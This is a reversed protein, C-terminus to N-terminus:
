LEPWSVEVIERKSEMRLVKQFINEKFYGNIRASFIRSSEPSLWSGRGEMRDLLSELDERRNEFAALLPLAINIPGGAFIATQPLKTLGDITAFTLAIPMISDVIFDAQKECAIRLSKDIEDLYLTKYGADIYGYWDSGFSFYPYWVGDFGERVSIVGRTLGHLIRNIVEQHRWSRIGLACNFTVGGNRYSMRPEVVAALGNELDLRCCGTEDSLGRSVLRQTFEKTAAKKIGKM